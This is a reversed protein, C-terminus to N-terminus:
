RLLEEDFIKRLKTSESQARTLCIRRFYSNPMISNDGLHNHQRTLKLVNNTVVGKGGCSGVACCLYVSNGSTNKKKYSFHPEDQFIYLTSNLKSGPIESLGAM